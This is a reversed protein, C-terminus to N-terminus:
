GKLKFTSEAYTTFASVGIIEGMSELRKSKTDYWYWNDSDTCSIVLIGNSLFGVPFYEGVRSPLLNLLNISLYKFWSDLDGYKKMVWIEVVQVENMTVFSLCGSFKALKRAHSVKVIQPVKILKFKEMKIDFSVIGLSSQKYDTTNGFCIMWHICENVVISCGVHTNITIDSTSYSEVESFINPMTIIKWSNSRLSYVGIQNGMKFNNPGVVGNEDLSSVKVVKFDTTFPDYGLGLISRNRGLQPSFPLKKSENITPNWLYGMQCTLDLLCLVGNVSGMILLLPPKNMEFFPFKHLSIEVFNEWNCISLTPDFRRNRKHLFVVRPLQRHLHLNIFYPTRLMSLWSKSVCECRKLSKADLRSLIDELFDCPINNYLVGKEPNAMLIWSNSDGYNKMVWVHFVTDEDVYIMSLCGFIKAIDVGDNGKKVQPLKILNFKEKSIDFAVIGTSFELDKDDSTNGNKYCISWHIFNNVNISMSMFPTVIVSEFEPFLNPMTIAKWSNSRSSYIGIKHGEKLQSTFVVVKFDNTLPDYGLGRLRYSKDEIFDLPPLKKSENTTPNWLYYLPCFINVRHDSIGIIGKDSCKKVSKADLRSLINELLDFAIDNCVVSEEEEEDPNAMIPSKFKLIELSSM